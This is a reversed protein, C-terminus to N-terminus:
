VSCVLQALTACIPVKLVSFVKRAHLETRFGGRVLHAQRASLVDLKLVTFALLAAKHCEATTLRRTTFMDMMVLVAPALASVGWLLPLVQFPTSVLDM